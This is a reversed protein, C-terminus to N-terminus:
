YLKSLNSLALAIHQREYEDAIFKKDSGPLWAKLLNQLATAQAVDDPREILTAIWFAHEVM